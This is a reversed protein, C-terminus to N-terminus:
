VRPDIRYLLEGEHVTAGETFLRARIIGSVQPRVDSTEFATTRGPLLLKLPVSQQKLVVYGAEPAPKGGGEKRPDRGCGSLATLLAAGCALLLFARLHTPSRPRSSRM